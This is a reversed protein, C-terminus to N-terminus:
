TGTKLAALEAALKALQAEKEAIQAERMAKQALRGDPDTPNWPLAVGEIVGKPKLRHENKDASWYYCGSSCGVREIRGNAQYLIGMTTQRKCTPCVPLFPICGAEYDGNWEAPVPTEGFGDYNLLGAISARRIQLFSEGGFTQYSVFVTPSGASTSISRLNHMSKMSPFSTIHGLVKAAEAELAAQMAEKAAKEALLIRRREEEEERHKADEEQRKREQEAAEWRRLVECLHGYIGKVVDVLAAAKLRQEPTWPSPYTLDDLNDAVHLLSLRTFLTTSPTVFLTLDLPRLQHPHVQKGANHMAQQMTVFAHHRQIDHLFPINRSHETKVDEVIQSLTKPTVSLVAQLRQRSELTAMLEELALRAEAEMMVRAEQARLKALRLEEEDRAKKEAAALEKEEQIRRMTEAVDASAPPMLEFVSLIAAASM